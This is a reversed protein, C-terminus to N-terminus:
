YRLHIGSNLLFWEWGKRTKHRKDTTFIILCRENGEEIDVEIDTTVKHSGNDPYKLVDDSQYFIIRNDHWM